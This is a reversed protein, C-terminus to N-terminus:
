QQRTGKPTVLPYMFDVIKKRLFKKAVYINM